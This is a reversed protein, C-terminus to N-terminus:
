VELWPLAGGRWGLGVPLPARAFFLRRLQQPQQPPPSSGNFQANGAIPLYEHDMKAAFVQEEAARVSPLV